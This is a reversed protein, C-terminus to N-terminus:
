QKRPLLAGDLQLFDYRHYFGHASNSLCGQCFTYSKVYKLRGDISDLSPDQKTLKSLVAFFDFLRAICYLEKDNNALIDLLTHALDDSNGHPVFVPNTTTIGAEILFEVAKAGDIYVWIYSWPDDDDAIYYTVINPPLVFCQGASASYKVNDLFITGSGSFIYHFVYRNRIIPGFEYQPPCKHTGVEYLNIDKYSSYNLFFCEDYHKEYIM